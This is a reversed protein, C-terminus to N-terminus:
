STSTGDYRNLHKRVTRVKLVGERTSIYSEGSMDRHGIWIGEEFRAELKYTGSKKPVLYMVNEGMEHMNADFKRGKCKQYPTKGDDGVNYRNMTAAAHRVIWPLICHDQSIKCNYRSEMASKM